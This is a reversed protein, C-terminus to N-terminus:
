LLLVARGMEAVTYNQNIRVYTDRLVVYTIFIDGSWSGFALNLLMHNM